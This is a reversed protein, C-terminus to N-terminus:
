STIPTWQAFMAAQGRYRDHEDQLNWIIGDELMFRRGSRTIRIGHYHTAYGHQAVRELMRAREDQHMPPASHRSLLSTFEDWSMEFLALATRNGYNFRPEADTTHSVVAFSADWLHRAQEIARDRQPVLDHGTWRLFSRMILLAHDAHYQNHLSPEGWKMLFKAKGEIIVCRV